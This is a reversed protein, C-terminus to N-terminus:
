SPPPRVRTLEDAVPSFRGGVSPDIFIGGRAVASFRPLHAGPNKAQVEAESFQGGCSTCYATPQEDRSGSKLTGVQSCNPCAYNWSWGESM